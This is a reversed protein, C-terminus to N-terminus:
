ADEKEAADFILAHLAIMINGQNALVAERYSRETYSGADKAKKNTEEIAEELGAQLRKAIDLKM